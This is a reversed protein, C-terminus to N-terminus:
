RASNIKLSTMVLDTEQNILEAVLGNWTGNVIGGWKGDKVRKLAFDFSLDNSFKKILDVCFGSCCKFKTSNPNRMEETINVGVPPCLMLVHVCSSMLCYIMEATAYIDLIQGILYQSKRQKHLKSAPGLESDAVMQCLSGKTATCATPQDLM